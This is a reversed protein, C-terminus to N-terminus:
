GNDYIALIAIMSSPEQAGINDLLQMKTTLLTYNVIDTYSLGFYYIRVFKGLSAIYSNKFVHHRDICEHGPAPMDM